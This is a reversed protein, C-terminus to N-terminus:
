SASEGFRRSKTMQKRLLAVGGATAQVASLALAFFPGRFNREIAQVARHLTQRSSRRSCILKQRHNAVAAWIAIIGGDFGHLLLVATDRKQSNRIPPVNLAAFISFELSGLRTDCHIVLNHDLSCFCFRRWTM